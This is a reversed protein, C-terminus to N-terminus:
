IEMSYIGNFIMNIFVCCDYQHSKHHRKRAKFSLDVQMTIFSLVESRTCLRGKSNQPLVFTMHTQFSILTLLHHCCKNLHATWIRICITILNMIRTYGHSIYTRIEAHRESNYLCSHQSENPSPFSLSILTKLVAAMSIKMDKKQSLSAPRQFVELVEKGNTYM